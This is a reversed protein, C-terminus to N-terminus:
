LIAIHRIILRDVYIVKEPRKGNIYKAVETSGRHLSQLMEKWLMFVAPGTETIIPVQLM